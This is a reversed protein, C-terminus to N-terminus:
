LGRNAYYNFFIEAALAEGERFLIHQQPIPGDPGYHPFAHTIPIDDFSENETLIAIVDTEFFYDCSIGTVTTGSPIYSLNHIARNLRGLDRHTSTKRWGILAADDLPIQYIRLKRSM